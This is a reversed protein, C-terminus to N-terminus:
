TKIHPMGCRAVGRDRRAFTKAYGAAVGVEPVRHLHDPEVASAGGVEAVEGVAVVGVGAVPAIGGEDEQEHM